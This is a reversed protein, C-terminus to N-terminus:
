RYLLDMLNQTPVSEQTGQLFVVDDRHCYYTQQWCSMAKNWRPMESQYQRESEKKKKRGSIIVWFVVLGSPILLFVFTLLFALPHFDGLVFGQGITVLGGLFILGAPFLLLYRFCAGEVKPQPPPTLYSALNSQQTGSFPNDHTEHHTYGDKDVYTNTSTTSGSIQHTDRSYIASIKEVQDNKRCIPCANAPIEEHSVVHIEQPKPKARGCHPCFQFSEEFSVGCGSCVPM